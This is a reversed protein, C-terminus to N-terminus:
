TARSGIAKASRKPRRRLKAVDCHLNCVYPADLNQKRSTTLIVLGRQRELRSLLWAIDQLWALLQVLAVGPDSPNYDTWEPSRVPIRRLAEDILELYSAEDCDPLQIPM